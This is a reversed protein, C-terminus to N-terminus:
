TLDGPLNSAVMVVISVMIRGLLLGDYSLRDTIVGATQPFLADAWPVTDRGMGADM